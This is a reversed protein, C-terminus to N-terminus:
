EKILRKVAVKDDAFRIQVIYVGSQLSSLDIQGGSNGKLIEQGLVNCLKVDKVQADSQITVYDNAPNPYLTFSAENIDSTSLPTTMNGQLYVSVPIYGQQGVFQASPVTIKFSHAGAALNGLPIRRIPIVDGPCWNSFSQWEAPTLPTPGYIGNSQTNYMRFPECTPSGPQYILVLNNDRYIFHNRRNYEEGGSNSGHNSTILYFSANNVAAPLNFNITRVTQGIVDTAGAAYNNLDKKFNLPLLYNYGSEGIADTDSVFELTGFFVDNRGSCGAIENQAAYPVGFIELEVWIDYVATISPDNFIKYINSVNFTYPVENPTANKNMFPTIFRGLEIRQVDNPNYTAAGKPVFALNVNGIRDYNDCSAKVTVNMTVSPGFSALEDETLMKAYLDNRHRIVGPPPTPASVTAAYGDFFLIEDFVTLNYITLAKKAPFHHVPTTSAKSDFTNLFLCAM